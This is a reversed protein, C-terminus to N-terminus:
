KVRSGQRSAGVGDRAELTNIAVRKGHSFRRRLTMEGDAERAWRQAALSSGEPIHHGELMPLVLALLLPSSSTARKDRM